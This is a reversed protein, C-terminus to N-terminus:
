GLTKNFFQCAYISYIIAGHNCQGRLIFVIYCGTYYQRLCSRRVFWLILGAYLAFVGAFLKGASTAPTNVPGMGGLLMAANLFADVSKMHETFVYGLMGICLSVGLLGFVALIHLSVRRYFVSKSIVPQRKTECM